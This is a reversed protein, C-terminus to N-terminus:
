MPTRETLGSRPSEIPSSAALLFALCPWGTGAPDGDSTISVVFAFGRRPARDHGTLEIRVQTGLLPLTPELHCRVSWGDGHLDPVAPVPDLEGIRCWLPPYARM